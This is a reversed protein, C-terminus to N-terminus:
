VSAVAQFHACLQWCSYSDACRLPHAPCYHPAAVCEDGAAISRRAIVVVREDGNDDKQRFHKINPDADHQLMDLLPVLRKEEDGNDEETFARSLISVFAGRVAKDIDDEAKLVNWIPEGREKYAKRVSTGLLSRLVKTAIAVEERIGVADEYAPSGDLTDVQAESWWLVHEQEQEGEPPWEADWPLM